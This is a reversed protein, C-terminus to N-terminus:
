FWNRMFKGSVNLSQWYWVFLSRGQMNNGADIALMRIVIIMNFDNM